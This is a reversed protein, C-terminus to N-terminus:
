RYKEIIRSIESVNSHENRTVVIGKIKLLSSRRIRISGDVRERKIKCEDCLRDLQRVSRGIYDAAEKRTFFIDIDYLTGSDMTRLIDVKHQLDIIGSQIDDLLASLEM